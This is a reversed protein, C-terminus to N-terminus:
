FFGQNVDIQLSNMQRKTISRMMALLSSLNAKLRSINVEIYSCVYTHLWPVQSM